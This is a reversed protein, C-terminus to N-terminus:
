KRIEYMCIRAGPHPEIATAPIGAQEVILRLVQAVWDKARLANQFVLLADGEAMGKWLVNLDATGLHKKTSMGAKLGTDPDLLVLLSPRGAGGLVDKIAEFYRKLPPAYDMGLLTVRPWRQRLRNLRGAAEKKFVQLENEFFALVEPRADQIVRKSRPRPPPIMSAYLIPRDGSVSRAVSWKWVDKDDAWFAHQM